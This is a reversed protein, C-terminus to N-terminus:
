ASLALSSSEPLNFVSGTIQIVKHAEELFRMWSINYYKPNDFDTCNGKRIEQVMTRVSEEISVQPRFNLIKYLKEGSVRYNRVGKYSYDPRVEVQIGAERLTERVRLALESIRYNGNVLNFVQGNVAEQEAQLLAIYARAADRIDVMPRWMEGGYHLSIFGKSIADKVFTNVVLDYRMRPSFGFVTGKRLATVCFKESALPLLEKEAAYKSSSYAAKPNVKATEDVLVDRQQDVVGFDYISCSSAYIYRRIGKELCHKALAVSATTNMEYNAAPNYEATPDNSLGAINIVAEVNDLSTPPMDRLDGVVIEVRDKIDALGQDGFYMRDLVRVAYGRELLEHALVSGIYGAGGVLLVKKM